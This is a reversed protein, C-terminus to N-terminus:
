VHELVLIDTIDCGILGEFIRKTKRSDPDKRNDQKLLDYFNVLEEVDQIAINLCEASNSMFGKRLKLCSHAIQFSVLDTINGTSPNYVWEFDFLTPQTNSLFCDDIVLSHFSNGRERQEKSLRFIDNPLESMIFDSIVLLDAKEYKDQNMIDLAHRLAPAVDTGGHFSSSLFKILSPLGDSGSFDLTSIGTSFNILYCERNEEKAKSALYLAVAKAVTEPQGMMSGSTDVCLIMPGKQDKETTSMEVETNEEITRQQLGHMDFCMLRSEVYKLDFLISTEDDSLLALESPLTHEIDKGLRIGVIEEKSSTDPVWTDLEQTTQIKEIREIQEQRHIKGLMECIEQIGRDNKLYEAWRKFAEIGQPTLSGESLDLWVGPELGLSKLSNFLEQLTKLEDKIKELLSARLERLKNFEWEGKVKDLEEQWKSILLEYALERDKAFGEKNAEDFEVWEDRVLLQESWFSDEFPLSATECFSKYTGLLEPIDVSSLSDDSQYSKLKQESSYYPNGEVLAKRVTPTYSDIEQNIYSHVAKTESLSPETILALSEHMGEKFLDLQNM